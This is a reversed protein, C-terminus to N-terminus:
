TRGPRWRLAVPDDVAVVRKWPSVVPASDSLPPRPTGRPSRGAAARRSTTGKPSMSARSAPARPAAVHGREDDLRDLALADVEGGVLVPLRRLRQAAPVLRQEDHVLHLGAEAPGALEEAVLVPAECGSMM